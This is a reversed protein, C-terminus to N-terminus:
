DQRPHHQGRRSGSRPRVTRGPARMLAAILDEEDHRATLVLIPLTSRRRIERCVQFGDVPPMNIDLILLDPPEREFAALVEAWGRASHHKAQLRM